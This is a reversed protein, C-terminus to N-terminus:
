AWTCSWSSRLKNIRIKEQEKQFNLLCLSQSLKSTALHPFLSQWGHARGEQALFHLPFVEFWGERLFQRDETPKEGQWPGEPDCLHWRTSRTSGREPHRNHWRSASPTSGGCKPALHGKPHPRTGSPCMQAPDLGLSFGGRATDWSDWPVPTARATGQSPPSTGFWSNM